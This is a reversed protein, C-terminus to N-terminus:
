ARPRIDSGWIRWDRKEPDPDNPNVSRKLMVPGSMELERGNRRLVVKAKAHVLVFQFGDRASIFTVEGIEPTYKTFPEFAKAFTAADGGTGAGHDTWLLRAEAYKGQELLSLYRQVFVRAATASPSDAPEDGRQATQAGAEATQKAPQPSCAGALAMISLGAAVRFSSLLASVRM